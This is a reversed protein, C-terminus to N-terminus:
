KKLFIKKVNEIKTIMNNTNNANIKLVELGLKKSIIV